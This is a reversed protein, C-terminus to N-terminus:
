FCYHFMLLIPKLEGILLLCGTPVRETKIFIYQGGGHFDSTKHFYGVTIQRCPRLMLIVLIYIFVYGMYRILVCVYTTCVYVYAHISVYM